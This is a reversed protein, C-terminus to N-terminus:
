QELLLVLLSFVNNLRYTLLQKGRDILSKMTTGDISSMTRDVIFISFLRLLWHQYEPIRALVSAIAYKRSM